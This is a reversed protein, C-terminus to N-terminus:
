FGEKFQGLSTATLDVYPADRPDAERALREVSDIYINLHKRLDILFSAVTAMLATADKHLISQLCEEKSTLWLEIGENYVEATRFVFRSSAMTYGFRVELEVINRQLYEICYGFRYEKFTGQTRSLFQAWPLASEYWGYQAGAIDIAFVEGSKLTVRLLYHDDVDPVEVGDKSILIMRLPVDKPDVSAEIIESCIGLFGNVDDAVSVRYQLTSSGKLLKAALEHVVMYCQVCCSRTLVAEKENQTRALTKDFHDVYRGRSGQSRSFKPLSEYTLFGDGRTVIKTVQGDWTEERFALYYRKLIDAARYLSRRM